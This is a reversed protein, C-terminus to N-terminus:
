ADSTLYVRKNRLAEEFARKHIPEETSIRLNIQYNDFEDLIDLKNTSNVLSKLNSALQDLLSKTFPIDEVLTSHKIFNVSNYKKPPLNVPLEVLALMEKKSSRAKQITAAYNNPLNVPPQNRYNLISTMATSVQPKDPIVVHSQPLLPEHIYKNISTLISSAQQNLPKIEPVYRPQPRPIPKVPIIPEISHPKVEPTPILIPRPLPPKFPIKPVTSKEKNINSVQANTSSLKISSRSSQQSSSSIIASAKSAISIASKLASARSAAAKSNAGRRGTTSGESFTPVPPPPDDDYDDM